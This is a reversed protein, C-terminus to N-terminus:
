AIRATPASGPRGPKGREGPKKGSSEQGLPRGCGRSSPPVYHDSGLPRSVAGISGGAAGVRCREADVVQGASEGGRGASGGPLEPGAEVVGRGSGAEDVLVRGLLAVPSRPRCRRWGRLRWPPCCLVGLRRRRGRDIACSDRVGPEPCLFPARRHSRREWYGCPNRTLALSPFRVRTRLKPLQHEAESSRECRGKVTGSPRRCRRGPVADHLCTCTSRRM